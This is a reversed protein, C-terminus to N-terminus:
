TAPNAQLPPCSPPENIKQGSQGSPPKTGPCPPPAHSRHAKSRPRQRNLATYFMLICWRNRGGGLHRLDRSPDGCCLRRRSSQWLCRWTRRRRDALCGWGPWGTHSFRTNFIGCQSLSASRCIRGGRRWGQRCNRRRAGAYGYRGRRLWRGCRCRQRSACRPLGRRVRGGCGLHM